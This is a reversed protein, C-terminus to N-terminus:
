EPLDEKQDPKLPMEPNQYPVQLNTIWKKRGIWKLPSNKTYHKFEEETLDPNILKIQFNYYFDELPNSNRKLNYPCVMQCLDCGYLSFSKMAEIKKSSTLYSLCKKPLLRYPTLALTPCSKLCRECLGCDTHISHSFFSDFRLSSLIIGIFFFSGYEPNVVLTNKGRFGIKAEIALEKEFVKGSDVLPLFTEEPRKKKLIQVCQNLKESVVLHYDNISAYASFSAKQIKPQFVPYPFGFVLYSSVEPLSNRLDMKKKWKGEFEINEQNIERNLLYEEHENFQIKSGVGFIPATKKLLLHFDSM